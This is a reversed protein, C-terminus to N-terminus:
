PPPFFYHQIKAMSSFQLHCSSIGGLWSKYVHHATNIEVKVPLYCSAFVPVLVIKIKQIQLELKEAVKSNLIKFRYLIFFVM